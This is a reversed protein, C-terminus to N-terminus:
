TGCWMAVKQSVGHKLLPLCLSSPGTQPGQSCTGKQSNPQRPEPGGQLKCPQSSGREKAPRPCLWPQCWKRHSRSKLRAGEMPGGDSSFSRSLQLRAQGQSQVWQQPGLGQGPSSKWGPGLGAKDGPVQRTNMPSHRIRVLGVPGAKSPEGPPSHSQHSKQGAPQTPTSLKWSVKGQLSGARAAEQCATGRLFEM